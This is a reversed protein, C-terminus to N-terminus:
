KVKKGNVYLINEIPISRYGSAQQDYITILNKESDSFAKNGGALHKTVGIRGNLIRVSKDTRKEFIVTVFKGSKIKNVAQNRTM